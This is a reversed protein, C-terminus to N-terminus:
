RLPIENQKLLETAHKHNRLIRSLVNLHLNYTSLVNAQGVLMVSQEALKFLKKYRKNKCSKQELEGLLKGLPGMSNLIKNQIRKFSVRPQSPLLWVKDTDLAMVTM